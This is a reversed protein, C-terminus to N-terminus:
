SLPFSNIETVHIYMTNTLRLKLGGGGGGGGPMGWANSVKAM